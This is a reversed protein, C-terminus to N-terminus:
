GLPKPPRPTSSSSTSRFEGRLVSTGATSTVFAGKVPQDSHLLSVPADPYPPPCADCYGGGRHYRCFQRCALMDQLGRAQKRRRGLDQLPSASCSWAHPYSMSTSFDLPKNLRPRLASSASHFSRTPRGKAARIPIRRTRTSTTATSARWSRISFRWAM